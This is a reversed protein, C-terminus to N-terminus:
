WDKGITFICEYFNYNNSSFNKSSNSYKCGLRSYFSDFNITDIWGGIEYLKIRDWFSYGIGAKAVLHLYKSINNNYKIGIINNDIKNPSYYCESQKSNFQYWGSFYINIPKLYLIDTDIQPTFVSNGDDIKEYAISYWLEKHNSYNYNTIEAKLRKHKSACITKRSYVLNRKNLNFLFYPFRYSLDWGISNTGSNDKFVDMTLRNKTFGMGTDNGSKQANKEYIKYWRHFLFIDFNKFSRKYQLYHTLMKTQQNDKFYDLNYILHNKYYSYNLLDSSLIKNIKAKNISKLKIYQYNLTQNEEVLKKKSTLKIPSSLNSENLYKSINEEITQINQTNNFNNINENIVKQPNFPKKKLNKLNEYIYKELSDNKNYPIYKGAKWQEKIIKCNTKNNCKIWLTKYGKDKKNKSAYTQFFKVIYINKEKKILVPDYIGVSIFWANKFINQKRLKWYINNKIKKDYFSSYKEFNMSEWAKKWQELFNKLFNPLPKPLSSLIEKYIKKAKDIQGSQQLNYAYHYKTLNDNKYWMLLFFEGAAKKYEKNYELTYAYKERVNYDNPNLILYNKYYDGATAYFGNFYARDGFVLLEKSKNNFYEDITAASSSNVFRPNIKLIKAKLIVADEYNPYKKLIDDVVSLAERNFGYWYYRKALDLYAEKTNKMNAYYELYGFAKYYNKLALYIDGLTKYTEIKEPHLKLYKEYFQAAKKYNKDQYYLDALKLIVEESPNKLYIKEYKKILPKVNGSLIMLAEKVEEDDPNQKLLKEFIKKAKEKKDQWMAIFGLMKLAEYKEQINGNDYVDSLYVIAKDYNGDWAFIKGILLKAKVSNLNRLYKLAQKTDGNWTLVKAFFIKANDDTPNNKIYEEMLKYAKEKDENYLAYFLPQLNKFTPEKKYNEYLKKIYEEKLKNLKEEYEKVIPNNGNRKLYFLLKKANEIDKNILYIDLLKKAYELKGTSYYLIKFYKEAEKLKGMYYYDYAKIEYVDVNKKDKVFNLLYLSDNYKGEWMYVRAIKLLSEDKLTDIKKYSKYAEFFNLLEKYKQKDYLDKIKQNANTTKFKIIYLFQKAYKNNKDKKLVDNIYKLAKTENKDIYYKILVLRNNIDDPNSTVEKELSSINIDIAFLFTGILLIIRKM